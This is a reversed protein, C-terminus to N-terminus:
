RKNFISLFLYRRTEKFDLSYATNLSSINDTFCDWNPVINVGLSHRIFASVVRKAFGKGRYEPMTAVDIEALRDAVSATYCISVPLGQENFVCFGYGNELFDAESKWFKSGIKLDFIHLSSINDQDIRQVTYMSPLETRGFEPDPDVGNFRLQVRERVKINLHDSRNQCEGILSEWADYIHFYQPLEPSRIFFDVLMDNKRATRSIFSFGAKHIILDADTEWVFIEGEQQGNLVSNIIPFPCSTRKRIEMFKGALIKTPM